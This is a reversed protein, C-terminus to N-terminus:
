DTEGCVPLSNLKLVRCLLLLSDRLNGHLLIPDYISLLQKTVITEKQRGVQM